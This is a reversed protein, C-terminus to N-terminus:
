LTGGATVLDYLGHTSMLSDKVLRNMFEKGETGTSNRYGPILEPKADITGQIIAERTMDHLTRRITDLSGPTVDAKIKGYGFHIKDSREPQNLLSGAIKIKSSGVDELAKLFATQMDPLYKEKITKAARAIMQSAVLPGMTGATVMDEYKKIQPVLEDEAKRDISFLGPILGKSLLDNETKQMGYKDVLQNDEMYALAGRSDGEWEYGKSNLALIGGTVGLDNKAALQGDLVQVMRYPAMYQLKGDTDRYKYRREAHERMTDEYKQSRRERIHGRLRDTASTSQTLRATIDKGGEKGILNGQADREGKSLLEKSQLQARRAGLASKTNEWGRQAYKGALKVPAKGLKKFQKGVWNRM